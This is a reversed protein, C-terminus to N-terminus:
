SAPCADQCVRVRGTIAIKVEYQGIDNSLTYTAPPTVMGTALFAPTANASLAVDTPLATPASKENIWQTAGPSSGVDTEISYAGPAVAVACNTLCVRYQRQRTVAQQRALRLDGALQWAAGRLRIWQVTDKVRPVGISALIILIFVLTLLEILTVGRHRPTEHLRRCFSVLGEM